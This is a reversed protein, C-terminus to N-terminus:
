CDCISNQEARAWVDQTEKSDLDRLIHFFGYLEEATAQKAAAFLPNDRRPNEIKRGRKKRARLYATASVNEGAIAGLVFMQRMAPPMETLARQQYRSALSTGKLADRVAQSLGEDDNAGNVPRIANAREVGIM